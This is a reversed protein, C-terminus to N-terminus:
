PLCTRHDTAARVLCDEYMQHRTFPDIGGARSGAAPPAVIVTTQASAADENRKNSADITSQWAKLIDAKAKAIGFKGSSFEEMVGDLFVYFNKTEQSGPFTGVTQYTRKICSAVDLFEDPNNTECANIAKIMQIKEGAPVLLGPSTLQGNRWQGIHMEKSPFTYTGLGHWQGDQNLRGSYMEGNSFSYTGQVYKGDVFVGVFKEGKVPVVVGFCHNWSATSSGQCPPIKAKLTRQVPGPHTTENQISRSTDAYVTSVLFVAFFPALATFFGHGFMDM